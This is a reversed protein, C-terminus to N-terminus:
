SCFEWDKDWSCSLDSNNCSSEDDYSYCSLQSCSSWDEDWHCASNQSCTNEDVIGSCSFVQCHGQSYMCVENELCSQENESLLLCSREEENSVYYGYCSGKQCDDGVCIEYDINNRDLTHDIDIVKTEFQNLSMEGLDFTQEITQDEDSFYDDETYIHMKVPATRTELPQIAVTLYDVQCSDASLAYNVPLDFESDAVQTSFLQAEMSGIPVISNKELLESYVESFIDMSLLYGTETDLCLSLTVKDAVGLEEFIDNKEANNSVIIFEDCQRQIIEKTGNYIITENTFESINSGMETYQSLDFFELEESQEDVVCTIEEESDGLLSSSDKSCTIVKDGITYSSADFSFLGGNLEIVNKDKDGKKYVGINLSDIGLFAMSEMAEFEMTYVVKIEEVNNSLEYYDLIREEPTKEVTCGTFVVLMISIILFFSKNM